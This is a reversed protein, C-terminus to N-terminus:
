LNLLADSRLNNNSYNNVTASTVRSAAHTSHRAIRTLIELVSIVLPPPLHFVELLYRLRPLLDM